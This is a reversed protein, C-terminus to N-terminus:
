RRNNPNLQPPKPTEFLDFDILNSDGPPATADASQNGAPPEAPLLPPLTPKAAPASESAAGKIFLYSLDLDPEAVPKAELPAVVTEEVAAPAYVPPPKTVDSETLTKATHTPKPGPSTM